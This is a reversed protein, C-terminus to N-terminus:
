RSSWASRGTRARGPALECAAKWTSGAVRGSTSIASRAWSAGPPFGSGGTEERREGDVTSVHNCAVSFTTVPRGNPTYRMEPDRGLNGIISAKCLGSM